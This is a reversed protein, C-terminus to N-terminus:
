EQILEKDPAVTKFPLRHKISEYFTKIEPSRLLLGALFYVLIGILGAVLGQLFIGVVTHTSVVLDMLRLSLYAAGGSFCSAIFIKVASSIIGKFGLNGVKKELFFWLAIMNLISGIAYGLALGAVGLERSFFWAGSIRVASGFLGLWFPTKCDEAAFFGRTLLLILSESFLALTLFELTNITLITNSWSFKGTGLIVRVIQARLVIFLASSPIILFLIQRFTNSFTKSFSEWRKSQAEDSLTPFAAVALSIGFIGYPFSWINYAFNFVALSGAILGSALVTIALWNLQSVALTLTRPTIAKILRRVAPNFLGLSFRYRFGLSFISPLQCAMHLFAGLVVGFALGYIGFHPVFFLIGFIIGVNYFIPTLSFVVFRKLSQLVGGWVNSIGLLLPSLFMIRTLAVTQAMKEAGFGPTILKMLFPALFFFAAGLIILSLVLLNLINNVFQWTEQAEEGQRRQWLSVFVPIFTASLSGLILLNYVLDPIRFAAYYVDLTDGAGFHGALLRDRLLGFFSSAVSALGLIIAASTITRSQGNLIKSNFFKFM